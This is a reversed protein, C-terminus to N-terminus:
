YGPCALSDPMYSPLRRHTSGNLTRRGLPQVCAQDLRLAQPVRQPVSQSGTQSGDPIQRAFERTLPSSVLSGSRLACSTVFFAFFQGSRYSCALGASLSLRVSLRRYSRMPGRKLSKVQPFLEHLLAARGAPNSGAVRQKSPVTSPDRFTAQHRGILRKAASEIAPLRTADSLTQRQQSGTQSGSGPM